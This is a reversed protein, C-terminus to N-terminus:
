RKTNWLDYRSFALVSFVVACVFLLWSLVPSDLPKGTMVLGYYVEDVRFMFGKMEFAVDPRTEHPLFPIKAGWLLGWGGWELWGVACILTMIRGFLRKMKCRKISLGLYFPVLMKLDLTWSCLLFSLGSAGFCERAQSM